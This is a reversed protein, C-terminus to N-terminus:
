LLQAERPGRAGDVKQEGAIKKWARRVSGYGYGTLRSIRRFSLGEERLRQILELPMNVQPRGVKRKTGM